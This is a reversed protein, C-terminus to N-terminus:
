LLIRESADPSIRQVFLQKQGKAYLESTAYCFGVCSGAHSHIKVLLSM